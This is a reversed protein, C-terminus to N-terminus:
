PIKFTLIKIDICCNRSDYFIINYLINDLLRTAQHNSLRWRDHLSVHQSNSGVECTCSNCLTLCFWWVTLVLISSKRLWFLKLGYFHHLYHGLRNLIKEILLTQTWLLPSSSHHLYRGLWSQPNEWDAFNLDMFTTIFSDYHLAGSDLYILSSDLYILLTQTWLLPLLSIM